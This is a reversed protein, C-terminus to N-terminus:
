ISWRVFQRMTDRLVNLATLNVRRWWTTNVLWSKTVTLAASIILIGTIIKQVHISLVFFSRFAFVNFEFHITVIDACLHNYWTSVEDCAGCRPKLKDAHHRGCYLKGEHEFYILEVLVENCESCNFCAPHYCSSPIRDATVAVEGVKFPVKCKGCFKNLFYHVASNYFLSYLLQYRVWDTKDESQKQVIKGKGLFKEKRIKVFMEM